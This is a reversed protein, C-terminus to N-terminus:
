GRLPDSRKAFLPRELRLVLLTPLLTILFFSKLIAPSSNRLLLMNFPAFQAALMATALTGRNRELYDRFAGLALGMLMFVFLNGYYGFNIYAETVGSFAFGGYGGQLYEEAFEEDISNGRGPYMFLPPLLTFMKVYTSGYFLQDPVKLKKTYYLLGLYPGEADNNAPNFSGPEAYDHVAEAMAGFGQGLNARALGVLTLSGLLLVAIIIMVTPKLRRGSVYTGALAGVAVHTVHMRTGVQFAHWVMMLMLGVAVLSRIRGGRILLAVMLCTVSVNVLHIGFGLSGMGAFLSDRELYTTQFVRFISGSGLYSMLMYLGLGLFFLASSTLLVRRENFAAPTTVRVAPLPRRLAYGLLFGVLSINSAILPKILGQEDLSPYLYVMFSPWKPDIMFEIPIVIHYYTLGVVFIFGPSAPGHRRFEIILFCVAAGVFAGALAPAPSPRFQSLLIALACAAIAAFLASSFVNLDISHNAVSTREM